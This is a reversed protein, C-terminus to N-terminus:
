LLAGLIAKVDDMDYKDQLEALLAAPTTKRREAIADLARLGAQPHAAVANAAFEAPSLTEINAALLTGSTRFGARDDNTVIADAKGVIAAHAVHGDDLDALEYDHTRDKAAQITSGPFAASMQDFLYIRRRDSEETEIGRRKDIRALVYDLEFLIGTGWIAAYAKEAALQLLFDRQLGPVLACTDLVARYVRLTHCM